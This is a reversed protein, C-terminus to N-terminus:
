ETAAPCLCHQTCTGAASQAAPQKTQFSSTRIKPRSAPNAPPVRRQHWCCKAQHEWYLTSLKPQQIHAARVSVVFSCRVIIVPVASLLASRMCRHMTASTMSVDGPHAPPGCHKKAKRCKCQTPQHVARNSMNGHPVSWGPQSPVLGQILCAARQLFIGLCYHATLRPAELQTSTAQISHPAHAQRSALKTKCAQQLPM